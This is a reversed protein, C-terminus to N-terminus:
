QTLSLYIEPYRIIWGDITIGDFPRYFPDVLFKIFLGVKKVAVEPRHGVITPYIMGDIAAKSEFHQCLSPLLCMALHNPIDYPSPVRATPAFRFFGLDDGLQDAPNKGTGKFGSKAKTHCLDIPCM